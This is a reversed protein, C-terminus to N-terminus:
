KLSGAEVTRTITMAIMASVEAATKTNRRRGQSLSCAAAIVAMTIQLDHHDIRGPRFQVFMQVNTAILLAGVFVAAKGGLSRAIALGGLTAPFIWLLPWLVRVGYEASAPSMVRELLWIFAALMADVLRSWHIYTGVPPQLRGIWQDWWGRGHLLDRVLVLRMADDTDGLTSGASNNWTLMVAAMALTVVLATLIMRRNSSLDPIPSLQM